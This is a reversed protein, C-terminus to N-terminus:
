RDSSCCGVAKHWYSGLWDLGMCRGAAPLEDATYSPCHSLSSRCPAPFALHGDPSECARGVVGAGVGAGARAVAVAVAVPEAM